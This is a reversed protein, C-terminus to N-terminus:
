VIRKFEKELDKQSIRILIPRGHPCHYPNKLKILDAILGRIEIEALHDHGKVAAKCATTALLLLREEDTKPTERRLYDMTERFAQEPNLKGYVAPVERLIIEKDGMPEYAFGTSRLLSDNELVFLMDSPTFSLIVPTLMLQSPVTKGKDRSYEAHLKEFLIKEHAAHQDLLIMGENLELIIYTSFLVGVIRARVLDEIAFGYPRSDARNREAASATEQSTVATEEASVACGESSAPNAAMSEPDAAPPAPMIEKVSLYTQLPYAANGKKRDSYLVNEKERTGTIITDLMEASSGPKRVTESLRSDEASAAPLVAEPGAVPNEHPVAPEETSAGRFAHVHNVSLLANHIVHYVARFVEGDNWFRVEAKQPHVNVDVLHSPIRVSLVLFAYRGKMLMTKYAEDIASSITKSRIIRDNIYVTQEGRNGRAIEPKGIFGSFHLDGFDEEVPICEKVIDKGYVSFLAAAPDNNGPSHLIEKGQSILRFSIDPRILAFREMLQAIYQSETADKKLFKYRAPLNFFLDRVQVSTGSPGGAPTVKLINGAELVVETGTDSGPERTRLTVRSAASISSLAEGRFGMTHLSFLDDLTMLKSTAHCSFALRADEEDMGCGDDTIRILSIGGNMIEATIMTAGADISNEVLEKVVSSPREVVEGAAIGDSTAHDLQHIRGM